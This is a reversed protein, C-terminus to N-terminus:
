LSLFTSGISITRLSQNSKRWNIFDLIHYELDLTVFVQGAQSEEDQSVALFVSKQEAPIRVISEVLVNDIFQQRLLTSTQRSFWLQNKHLYFLGPKLGTENSKREPRLFNLITKFRCFITVETEFELKM